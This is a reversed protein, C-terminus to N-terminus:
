QVVSSLLDESLDSEILVWCLLVIHLSHHLTAAIDSVCFIVGSFGGWPSAPAKERMVTGCSLTLTLVTAVPLLYVAAERLGQLSEPRVSVFLFFLSLLEGIPIVVGLVAVTLNEGLLFHEGGAAPPLFASHSSVATHFLPYLQFFPFSTHTFPHSASSPLQRFLPPPYLLSAPLSLGALCGSRQSRQLRVALTKFRM